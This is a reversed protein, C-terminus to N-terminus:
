DTKGDNSLQVGDTFAKSLAEAKAKAKAVDEKSMPAGGAGAGPALKFDVTTMDLSIHADHTQSLDGKSATIKYAGSPLGVQMYEGRKNSKTELPKGGKDVSQISIKAGEVPNGQADLVKGKVQGTQASAPLAICVLGLALAATAFSRRITAGTMSGELSLRIKSGSGVSM